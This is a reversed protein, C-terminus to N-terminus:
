MPNTTNSTTSAVALKGQWGVASSFESFAAVNQKVAWDCM